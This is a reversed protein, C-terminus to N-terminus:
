KGARFNSAYSQVSPKSFGYTQVLWDIAKRRSLSDDMQTYSFKEYCLERASKGRKATEKKAAKAKPEEHPYMDYYVEAVLSSSLNWHKVFVGQIEALTWSSSMQIFYRILDIPNDYNQGNFTYTVKQEAKPAAKVKLEVGALEAIYLAQEKTIGLERSNFRMNNAKLTKFVKKAAVAAENKNSNHIALNIFAKLNKISM